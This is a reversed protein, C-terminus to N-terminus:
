RLIRALHGVRLRNKQMTRLQRTIRHHASQTLRDSATWDDPAPAREPYNGPWPVADRGRGRPRRARSRPLSGPGRCRGPAARVGVADAHDRVGGHHGGGEFGVAVERGAVVPVVDVPDLRGSPRRGPPPQPGLGVLDGELLRGGPVHDCGAIQAGACAEPAVGREAGGLGVVQRGDSSPPQRSSWVGNRTSVSATMLGAVRSVRNRWPRSGRHMSPSTTRNPSTESSAMSWTCTWTPSCITGITGRKTTSAAPTPM